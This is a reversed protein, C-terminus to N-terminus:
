RHTVSVLASDGGAGARELVQGIGRVYYDRDVVGPELRSSERTELVGTYSGFPVTVSATLSAVSYRDEAHGKYYEQYHRTGVRPNRPMFDGPFARKVGAHWSDASRKFHGSSDADFADEGFYWVDGHKDQAYYDSTRESPHGSNYVYDHVVVCRVGDLVKTRHTVTMVDRSPAGQQTEYVFQTGPKLPFWANDIRTSFDAPNVHVSYAHASAVPLALGALAAVAAIRRPMGTVTPSPCSVVM